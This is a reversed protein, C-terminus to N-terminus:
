PMVEELKGRVLQELWTSLSLGDACALKQAAKLVAPNISINQRVKTVKKKPAGRKPKTTPPQNTTM